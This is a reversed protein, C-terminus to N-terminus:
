NRGAETFGQVREAGHGMDPPGLSDMWKPRKGGSSGFVSALNGIGQARSGGAKGDHGNWPSSLNPDGEGGLHGGTSTEHCAM